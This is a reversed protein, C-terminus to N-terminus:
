KLKTHSIYPTNFHCIRNILDRLKWRWNSHFIVWQIGLMSTVKKRRYSTSWRVSWRDFKGSVANFNMETLSTLYFLIMQDVFCGLLSLLYPFRNSFKVSHTWDYAIIWQRLQTSNRFHQSKRDFHIKPNFITKESKEFITESNGWAIETGFM